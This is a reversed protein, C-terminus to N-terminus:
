FAPMTQTLHIPDDRDHVITGLKAADKARRTRISQSLTLSVSLLQLQKSALIEMYEVTGWRCPLKPV